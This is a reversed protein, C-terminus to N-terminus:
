FHLNLVRPLVNADISEDTNEFEVGDFLYWDERYTVTADPELMTLPGLSELELMESNTFMEFVCGSDPYEKGPQSTIKKVFLHRNRAYAAWNRESSIGIKQPRTANVDQKLIIYKETFVWRPDNLKTYSWLVMNRVPLYYRKDVQQGPEDPIDPHPAYPEQPLIARGGSNMVSLAWPAMEVPWLNHNTIKHIVEVHADSGDLSIQVEKQMGTMSEIESLLRLTNGQSEFEVPSNDPYYSRPKAEPALWLRHGGYAKWEDGGTTGMQKPDEFFENDRGIFGFRIIRPGVDTTAILEVKENRLRICNPWGAYAVKEIM